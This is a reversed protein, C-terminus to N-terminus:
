RKLNSVEQLMDDVTTIIKSSASYARQFRIMNTFEQALDATSAELKFSKIKGAGLSGPANIAYAGSRDSVAYGNGTIRTLGEPSPVTAVPLQFVARSTGDDFIASVVGEDSVGISSVNGLLGGDVGSTIVSSATGFQTFGDLGDDSGFQLRIPETGAANTWAPTVSGFLAPTSAAKDLSGDPNFKITGSALLGDVQTVDTKPEVYIEGKWENAATKLVSVTLRHAGGQADYVDVSRSFSPTVAGTAMNGAAYTGAFAATTSQFNARMQVKTTAAATGTLDSVRIPELANANGTNTYKGQADLRWGQLFLGSSNTLYGEKNQVFSGARTLTMLSDKGAGARAVFFGPGEIGLDTASSSAQLLGAKSVLARPAASVGGAAYTSTVRGEGVLTSFQTDVAKYGVTNINTINDAVAAMASSEASLGSVGAFLASYLSMIPDSESPPRRHGAHHRIPGRRAARDRRPSTFEM